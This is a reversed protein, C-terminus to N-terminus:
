KENLDSRAPDTSRAVPTEDVLFFRLGQIPIRPSNAGEIAAVLMWGERDFTLSLPEITTDNAFFRSSEDIVRICNQSSIAQCLCEFGEPLGFSFSRISSTDGSHSGTVAITHDDDFRRRLRGRACDPEEDSVRADSEELETTARANEDLTLQKSGDTDSPMKSPHSALLLAIQRLISDDDPFAATHTIASRILSNISDSDSGGSSDPAGDQGSSVNVIGLPREFNEQDHLSPIWFRGSKIDFEIPIGIDRFSALDRFVTRRAVGLESALKMADYDGGNRLLLLM